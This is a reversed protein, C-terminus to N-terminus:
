MAVTVKVMQVPSLPADDRNTKVESIKVALDYGETVKGFVAHKSDPCSKDWFDLNANHAVNM